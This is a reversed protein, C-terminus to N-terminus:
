ASGVADIATVGAERSVTESPSSGSRPSGSVTLAAANRPGSPAAVTTTVVPMRPLVSGDRPAGDPCGGAEGCNSGISIRVLANRSPAFAVSHCRCRRATAM